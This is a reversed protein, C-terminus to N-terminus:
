QHAGNVYKIVFAPNAEVRVCPWIPIPTHSELSRGIVYVSRHVTFLAGARLYVRKCEECVISGPKCECMRGSSFMGMQVHFHLEEPRAPHQWLLAKGAVGGALCFVSAESLEAFVTVPGRGSGVPLCLVAYSVRQEVGQVEEEDCLCKTGRVCILRRRTQKRLSWEEPGSFNAECCLSIGQEV